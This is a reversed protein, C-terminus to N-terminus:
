TNNAMVFYGNLSIAILLWTFYPLVLLMSVLYHKKGIFLFWSVTLFLLIIVLLALGSQRFYFFMPNWLVNLLWQVAYISYMTKPLVGTVAKSIRTMYFSFCIMISTWAFGFVFGPPTWPAQNAKTYWDSHVGKTTFLSGIALAAFNLVFFLIFTKLNKM